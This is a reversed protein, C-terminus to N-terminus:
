IEMTENFQSLNIKNAFLFGYEDYPFADMMYVYIVDGQTVMSINIDHDLMALTDIIFPNNMEQKVFGNAIDIMKGLRVDLVQTPHEDIVLETDQQNAKIVWDLKVTVKDYEINTDVEIPGQTVQYEKFADFDGTCERIDDAIYGSIDSAVEIRSLSHNEGLHYLFNIQGDNPDNLRTYGGYVGAMTVAEKTSITICRDIFEPLNSIKPVNFDDDPTQSLYFTMTVGILIVIGLIIFITLQGKKM